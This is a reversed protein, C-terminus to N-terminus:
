QIYTHLVILFIFFYFYILTAVINKKPHVNKKWEILLVFYNYKAIQFRLPAIYAGGWGGDLFGPTYNRMM